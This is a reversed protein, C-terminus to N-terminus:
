YLKKFFHLIEKGFIHTIEINNKTSMGIDFDYAICTYNGIDAKTANYISLSSILKNGSTKIENAYNILQAMNPFIWQIDINVKNTQVECTLKFTEGIITHGHNLDKVLPISTNANKVILTLPLTYQQNANNPNIFTCNM